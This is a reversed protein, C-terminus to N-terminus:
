ARSVNLPLARPNGPGAFLDQFRLLAETLDASRLAQRGQIEVRDPLLRILGPFGAATVECSSCDSACRVQVGEPAEEEVRDVWSGIDFPGAFDFVLMDFSGGFVAQFGAGVVVEPSRINVVERRWVVSTPDDGALAVSVQYDFDPTRVFGGGREAAAEVDRRKYRLQERVAAYVADVDAKLDEAAIDAVFKQASPSVRDPVHHFKRFGSLSKVRASTEARLAGRKLQQLRPDANAQHRALLAGVDAVVFRRGPAAYCCPTQVRADEFTQRLSRPVEDALHAQLSAATLFRGEELALPAEGALAEILHHAWIGHKLRGSTYSTEGPRCSALCVCGEGSGFFDELEAGGPPAAGPLGAASADLFLAAHRCGGARLANLLVALPLSTPGLDDAQSDACTLYTRGAEAFARGSYFVYLIDDPGLGQVARRLKSEAATKTTQGGLLVVQKDRTFGHLELVRALEAADAEACRAPPIAPDQYSDVAILFAVKVAL